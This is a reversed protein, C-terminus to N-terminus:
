GGKVQSETFQKKQRPQAGWDRSVRVKLNLSIGKKGPKLEGGADYYERIDILTQGKFDRVDVFRMRGLAIKDDDQTLSLLHSLSM